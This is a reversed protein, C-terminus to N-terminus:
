QNSLQEELNLVPQLNANGMLLVIELHGSFLFMDPSIDPALLKNPNAQSAQFLSSGYLYLVPSCHVELNVAPAGCHLSAASNNGEQGCSIIEGLGGEGKEKKVVADKGCAM